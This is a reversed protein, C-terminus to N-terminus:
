SVVAIIIYDRTITHAEARSFLVNNWQHKVTKKYYYFM